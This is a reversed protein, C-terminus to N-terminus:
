NNVDVVYAAFELGGRSDQLVVWLHVPGAAAPARWNNRM